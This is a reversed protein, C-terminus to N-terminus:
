DDERRQAAFQHGCEPCTQLGAGAGQAIRRAADDGAPDPPVVGTREALTAIFEQLGPNGTNTREMAGRLNEKDARAMAGIPDFTILFLYEERETLNLWVAPVTRAGRADALLVRMHGDLMVEAGAEPGDARINIIIPACWGLEDLAGSMAAQQAKPHIRWNLENFLLHEVEADGARVMRNRWTQSNDAM